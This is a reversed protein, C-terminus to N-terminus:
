SAGGIKGNFGRLTGRFEDQVCRNSKDQCMGVSSVPYDWPNFIWKIEHNEKIFINDRM